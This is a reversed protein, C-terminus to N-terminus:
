RYLIPGNHNSSRALIAVYISGGLYTPTTGQNFSGPDTYVIYNAQQLIPLIDIGDDDITKGFEGFGLNVLTQSVILVVTTFNIEQDCALHRWLCSTGEPDHRM